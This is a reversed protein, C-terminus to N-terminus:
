RVCVAQRSREGGRRGVCVCESDFAFIRVATHLESKMQYRVAHACAAMTMPSPMASYRYWCTHPRSLVCRALAASIIGAVGGVLGMFGHVYTVACTDGSPNAHMFPLRRAGVCLFGAQAAPPPATVVHTNPYM